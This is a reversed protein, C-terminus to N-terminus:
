AVIEKILAKRQATTEIVRAQYRRLPDPLDTPNVQILVPILTKGLAWAAGIEMFVWPRNLSRPTILILIRNAGLLADRIADQWETAVAIDKEAMFCKVNQRELDVRLESAIAGDAAAYSLFLDYSPRLPAIKDLLEALRDPNSVIRTAEDTVRYRFGGGGHTFQPQVDGILRHRGLEELWAALTATGVGDLLLDASPDAYSSQNHLYTAAGVELLRQVLKRDEM